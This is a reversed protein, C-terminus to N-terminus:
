VTARDRGEWFPMRRRVRGLGGPRRDAGVHLRDLIDTLPQVFKMRGPEAWM